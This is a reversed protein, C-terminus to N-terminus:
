AVFDVDGMLRKVVIAQTAYIVLGSFIMVGIFVELGLFSLSEFVMSIISAITLYLLSAMCMGGLQLYCGVPAFLSALTFGGFVVATILTASLVTTAKITFATTVLPGLSLGFLFGALMLTIFRKYLNLSQNPTSLVWIAMLISSMACISAWTAELAQQYAVAGGFSAATLAMTLTTYVNLM